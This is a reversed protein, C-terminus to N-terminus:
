SSLLVPAVNWQCNMFALFTEGWKCYETTSKRQWSNFTHKTHIHHAFILKMDYYYNNNNTQAKTWVLNM